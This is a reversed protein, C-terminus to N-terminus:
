WSGSCANLTIFTAMASMGLRVFGPNTVEIRVKAMRNSSDLISAIDPVHEATPSEPYANLKILVKRNWNCSLFTM